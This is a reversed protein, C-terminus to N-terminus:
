VRLGFCGVRRRWRWWEVGVELPAHVVDEGLLVELDGGGRKEFTGYGDFADSRGKQYDSSTHFAVSCVTNAKTDYSKFKVSGVKGALNPGKFGKGTKYSKTGKFKDSRRHPEPRYSQSNPPPFLLAM